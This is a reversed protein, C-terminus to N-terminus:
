TQFFIIYCFFLFTLKFLNLPFIFLNFHAMLTCFLRSKVSGLLVSNPNSPVSLYYQLLNILLISASMERAPTTASVVHMGECRQM